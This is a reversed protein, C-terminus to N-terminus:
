GRAAPSRPPRRPLVMTFTTGDQETSSLEMRGGHARVIQDCIFLGLGLGSRPHHAGDHGLSARVLPDFIRPQMEHPIPLGRNHVTVALDEDRGQAHVTVPRGPEGHQVANTVLNDLAQLLRQADWEGRLDGQCDFRLECSPHAAAVEEVTQQVLPGLSVVSTQMAMRDFRVRTFDLLEDIMRRMRTASNFIRVASKMSAAGLSEDRMLLQASTLTAGLPTRLDHGLAGLFLDRARNLREAYWTTSAAWAEDIAEGFRVVDRMAASDSRGQANWRRLVTARIARYESAMQDITFDQQLRHAAHLRAYAVLAPEQGGCLGKSKDAQQERTQEASMDDAVSMLLPKVSDRLEDRTLGSAAPVQRATFDVWAQALGDLEARIFEALGQTGEPQLPQIPM